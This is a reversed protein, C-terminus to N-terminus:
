PSESALNFLLIKQNIIENEGKQCAEVIGEVNRDIIEIFYLATKVWGHTISRLFLEDTLEAGHEILYQVVNVSECVAADDISFLVDIQKQYFYDIVNVQDNRAAESIINKLHKDYPSENKELYNVHIYNPYIEYADILYEIAKLNGVKAAEKLADYYAHHFKRMRYTKKENFDTVVIARLLIRVFDAGPIKAAHAFVNGNRAFPDAGYSLLVCLSEYSKSLVACTLPENNNECIPVGYYIISRLYDVDNAKIKELMLKYRYQRGGFYLKLADM